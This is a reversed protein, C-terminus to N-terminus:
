AVYGLLTLCIDQFHKMVSHILITIVSKTNLRNAPMFQILKSIYIYVWKSSQYIMVTFSLNQCYCSVIEAQLDNLCWRM